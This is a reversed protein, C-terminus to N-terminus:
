IKHSSTLLIQQASDSSDSSAFFMLKFFFVHTLSYVTKLTRLSFDLIASGSESGQGQVGILLLTTELAPSPPTVGPGPPPGPDTWMGAM